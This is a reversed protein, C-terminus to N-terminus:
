HAIAPGKASFSSVDVLSACILASRSAPSSSLVSPPLFQEFVAYRRAVGTEEITGQRGREGDLHRIAPELRGDDPEVM